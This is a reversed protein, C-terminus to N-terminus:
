PHRPPDALAGAALADRTWALAGSLDTQVSADLILCQGLGLPGLREARRLQLSLAGPDRQADLHGPHRVRRAFRAAALEAPCRCHLELVLRGPRALGAIPTGSGGEGRPHRWWSCAVARPAAQLAALFRSDAERSLARRWAADGIGRADFLAELFDDKDLCPWALADAMGRALTSKGSGPLGSVLLLVSEIMGGM